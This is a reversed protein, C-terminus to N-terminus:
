KSVKSAMSAFQVLPNEFIYSALGDRPQVKREVSAPRPAIAFPFPEVKEIDTAGGAHRPLFNPGVSAVRRIPVCDASHCYVACLFPKQDFCFCISLFQVRGTLCAVSTSSWEYDLCESRGFRPQAYGRVTSPMVAIVLERISNDNEVEEKLRLDRGPEEVDVKCTVKPIFAPRTGSLNSAPILRQGRQFSVDAQWAAVGKFAPHV